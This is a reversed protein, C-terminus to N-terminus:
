DEKSPEDGNGPLAVILGAVFAGLIIVFTKISTDTLFALGIGLLSLTLYRLRKNM